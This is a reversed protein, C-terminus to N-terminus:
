SISENEANEVKFKCSIHAVDADFKKAIVNMDAVDSYVPSTAEFYMRIQGSFKENVFNFDTENYINFIHNKMKDNFISGAVRAIRKFSWLDQVFADLESEPLERDLKFIITYAFIM